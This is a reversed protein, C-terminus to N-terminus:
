IVEKFHDRHLCSHCSSCLWTVDLPKNYDHHHGEIQGKSNCEECTSPKVLKSSNVAGSVAIHAKYKLPFKQRYKRMYSTNAEIRHSLYGRERDYARIKDINNWRHNTADSKTCEKCKGLHGDTMASHKYFMDLPKEKNCKFCEKSNM